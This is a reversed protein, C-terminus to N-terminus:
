KAIAEEPDLPMETGAEYTGMPDYSNNNNYSEMGKNMMRSKGWNRDYGDSHMARGVLMTLGSLVFLTIGAFIGVIIGNIIQEKKIKM